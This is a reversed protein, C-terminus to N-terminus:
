KARLHKTVFAPQIDRPQFSDSRWLRPIHCGPALTFRLSVRRGQNRRYDNFVASFHSIDVGIMGARESRDKGACFNQMGFSVM